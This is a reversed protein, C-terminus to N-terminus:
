ENLHEERIEMHMKIEGGILNNLCDPDDGELFIVISFKDVDGVKFDDRSKLVVVDDKYFPTTDKEALKTDSNLKAYVSKEDNLYVIVRIAEDVDKIVDDIIIQYWYNVSVKGQNEIYFTYAIYNEGNHSGGTSSTHIDAPLWDISINDMHNVTDAFLKRQSAREEIDDYIIIGKEDQLNSDLTITFKNINFVINLLIFIIILLLLLSFLITKVILYREKRKKIKSASVKVVNEMMMVM